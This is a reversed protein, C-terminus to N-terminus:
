LRPASWSIPQAGLRVSLDAALRSVVAGIEAGVKENDAGALHAIAVGAVAVPGHGGAFVPAGFCIMAERLQGNDISYGRERTQDLEALLSDIDPVSNQTLATPWEGDFLAVVQETAMTALMAKGTATFATPFRLGERFRVGLPDSGQRCALYMVERGTLISLNIAEPRDVLEAVEAFARSISNQSEFANAWSLVHPGISFQAGGVRVLLGLEALTRCLGHVTSRPLCLERALQSIGRPQSDSALADLIRKARVLAPVPKSASLPEGVTAETM